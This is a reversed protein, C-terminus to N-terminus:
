DSGPPLCPRIITHVRRERPLLDKIAPSSYRDILLDAGCRAEDFDYGSRALDASVDSHLIALALAKRTHDSDM